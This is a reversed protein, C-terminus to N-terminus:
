QGILHTIVPEEVHIHFARMREEIDRDSETARAHQRLHEAWTEVLFTEVFRAPQASDQFLGWQIAGDRRRVRGLDRMARGFEPAKNPDIWYEIQVLVPGQQPQPELVVVPEPWYASPVLNLDGGDILRYRLSAPLGALLGLAACTLASIVGFHTAVTGWLASGGAMGGMFVLTYTSLTRGRAWAPAAAQAATNFSSMVSIWAVGGLIMAFGAAIPVHVHALVLTVIAFLVTAGNVLVDNSVKERVKSLFAAGTVAGAGICGLLVGYGFSGLSLAHRAQL